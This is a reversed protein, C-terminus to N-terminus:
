LAARACSVQRHWRVRVISGLLAADGHREGSACVDGPRCLCFHNGESNFGVFPRLVPPLENRSRCGAFLAKAANPQHKKGIAPIDQGRCHNLAALCGVAIVQAGLHGNPELRLLAILPAM